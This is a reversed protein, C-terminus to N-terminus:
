TGYKNNSDPNEGVLISCPEEKGMVSTCQQMKYKGGSASDGRWRYMGSWCEYYHHKAVAYGM